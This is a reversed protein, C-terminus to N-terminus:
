AVKSKETLVERQILRKISEIVEERAHHHPMHGVEKLIQIDLPAQVYEVLLQLSEHFGYEDEKGYVLHVPSQINRLDEDCSWDNFDESLWASAWGYFFLSETREGHYRRLKEALQGSEYHKVAIRIGDRAATSTPALPPAVACVGIVKEPLSAAALLAIVAGDSHGALIVKNLGFKELVAPLVSQAEVHRYDPKRIATLKGSYGHGFREYAVVPLKTQRALEAPFDKWTELCDLGGHLLVICPKDVELEGIILTKLNTPGVELFIEQTQM